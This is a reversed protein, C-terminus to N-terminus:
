DRWVGLLSDPTPNAPLGRLLPNRALLQPALPGQQGFAASSHAPSAAVEETLSHWAPQISVCCQVGPDTRETHLVETESSLVSM